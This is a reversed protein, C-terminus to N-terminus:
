SGEFPPDVVCPTVPTYTGHGQFQLPFECARSEGFDPVGITQEAIAILSVDGDAAAKAM